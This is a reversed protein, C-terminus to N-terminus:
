SIFASQLNCPKTKLCHPLQHSEFVARCLKLILQCCKTQVFDSVSPQSNTDSEAIQSVSTSVTARWHALVLNFVFVRERCKLETRLWLSTYSKLLRIRRHYKNLLAIWYKFFVVHLSVALHILSHTQCFLSSSLKECSVFLQINASMKRGAKSGSAQPM